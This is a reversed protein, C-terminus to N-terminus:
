YYWSESIIHTSFSSLNHLCYIGGLNVEHAIGVGCVDNKSSGIIGSCSTGHWPYYFSDPYNDEVLNYFIKPVQMHTCYVLYNVCHFDETNFEDSVYNDWLDPHM